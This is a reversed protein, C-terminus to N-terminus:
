FLIFLEPFEIQSILLHNKHLTNEKKFIVSGIQQM